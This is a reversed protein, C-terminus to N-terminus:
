RKGNKWYKECITHNYNDGPRLQYCQHDVLMNFVTILSVTLIILMVIITLYYIIEIKKNM